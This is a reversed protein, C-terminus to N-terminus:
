VLNGQSYYSFGVGRNTIAHQAALAVNNFFCFGDFRTEMAHHGPPRIVAMGNQVEGLLIKEVLEIGCGVALLSLEFTSQLYM